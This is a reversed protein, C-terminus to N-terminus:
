CGLDATTIGRFCLSTLIVVCDRQLQEGSRRCNNTTWSREIVVAFLVISVASQFCCEERIVSQSHRVRDDAQPEFWAFPSGFKEANSQVFSVDISRVHASARKLIQPHVTLTRHLVLCLTDL